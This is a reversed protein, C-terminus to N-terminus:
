RAEGGMGLWSALKAAHGESLRAGTRFRSLNSKGIGTGAHARTLGGEEAAVKAFAKRIERQADPPVVYTLGEFVLDDEAIGLADAMEELSAENANASRLRKRMTNAPIGGAVLKAVRAASIGRGALVNALIGAFLGRERRKVQRASGLLGRLRLGEAPFRDDELLQEILVARLSLGMGRAVRAATGEDLPSAGGEWDSRSGIEAVTLGRRTRAGRLARAVFRHGSM